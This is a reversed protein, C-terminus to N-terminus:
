EAVLILDNSRDPDFPAFDFGGYSIVEEFGAQQLAQTVEAEQWPYHATRAIDMKWEKDERHLTLMNFTLRTPGFDYFRVFIYEDNGLSGNKSPFFRDNFTLIRTYNLLQIVLLGGPKTVSRFATAARQLSPEDLLHVLTNGMCAVLDFTGHINGNLDEISLVEFDIEIGREASKGRAIEIMRPSPDIAKVRYAEDAWFIAQEGTGCGCDLISTAFRERLLHDFFPKERKVRNRWNILADYHDALSEYFQQSM